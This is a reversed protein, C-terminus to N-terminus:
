REVGKPLRTLAQALEKKGDEINRLPPLWEHEWKDIIKRVEEGSMYKSQLQNKLGDREEKWAKGCVLDTSGCWSCKRAKDLEEKGVLEGSKLASLISLATQTFGLLLQYDKMTRPQIVDRELGDIYDLEYCQGLKIASEIEEPSPLM